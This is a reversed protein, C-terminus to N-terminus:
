ICVQVLNTDTKYVM